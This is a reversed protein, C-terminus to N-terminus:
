PTEDPYLAFLSDFQSRSFREAVLGQDAALLARWEGPTLAWFDAPRLRMARVGYAFWEDWPM